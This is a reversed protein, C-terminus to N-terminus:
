ERARERERHSERTIAKEREREREREHKIQSKNSNAAAMTVGHREIITPIINHERERRTQTQRNRERQTHKEKQNRHHKSLGIYIKHSLIISLPHERQQYRKERKKTRTNKTTWRIGM